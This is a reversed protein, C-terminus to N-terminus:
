DEQLRWLEGDKKCMGEWQRRLVLWIFWNVVICVVSDMIELDRKPSAEVMNTFFLSAALSDRCIIYEENKVAELVLSVVKEPSPYRKELDEISGKVGQM